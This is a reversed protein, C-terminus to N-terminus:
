PTSVERYVACTDNEFILAYGYRDMPMEPWIGKSLLVYGADKRKAAKAVKGLDPHIKELETLGADEDEHIMNLRSSYAALSVDWGPMVIVNPRDNEALIADAAECLDPEIHMGSEARTCFQRSFVNDGSISVALVIFLASFVVVGIKGVTKGESPLCRKLLVAFAAGITAPVSLLLPLDHDKERGSRAVVLAAALYLVLVSGTGVLLRHQSYLDYLLERIM